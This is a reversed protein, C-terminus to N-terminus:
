EEHYDPVEIGKSELLAELEHIRSRMREEQQAPIYVVSQAGTGAVVNRVFDGCKIAQRLADAIQKETLNEAAINHTHIFRAWFEPDITFKESLSKDEPTLPGPVFKVREREFDQKQPETLPPMTYQGKEQGKEHERLEKIADRILGPDFSYGWWWAGGGDKASLWDELKDATSKESMPPDGVVLKSLSWGDPCLRQMACAAVAVAELIGGAKCEYSKCPVDRTMGGPGTMTCGAWFRLPYGLKESLDFSKIALNCEIKM